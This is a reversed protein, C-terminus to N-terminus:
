VSVLLLRPQVFSEVATQLDYTQRDTLKNMNLGVRGTQLENICLNKACAIAHFCQSDSAMAWPCVNANGAKEWKVGGSYASVHACPVNRGTYRPEERGWHPLPRNRSETWLNDSDSNLHRLWEENTVVINKTPISLINNSVTTLTLQM